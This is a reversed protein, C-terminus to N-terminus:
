KTDEKMYAMISMLANVLFLGVAVDGMTFNGGPDTYIVADVFWLHFAGYILAIDFQITEIWQAQTMM